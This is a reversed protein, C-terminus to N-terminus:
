DVMRTEVITRALRILEHAARIDGGFFSKLQEADLAVDTPPLPVFSSQFDPHLRSLLSEMSIEAQKVQSQENPFDALHSAM